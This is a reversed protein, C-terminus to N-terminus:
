NDENLLCTVNQKKRRATVLTTNAHGLFKRLQKCSSKTISLIENKNINSLLVNEDHVRECLKVYEQIIYM